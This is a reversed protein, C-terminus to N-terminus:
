KEMELVKKVVKKDCVPCIRNLTKGGKPSDLLVLLNKSRKNELTRHVITWAGM